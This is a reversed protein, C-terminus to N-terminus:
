DRTFTLAGYGAVMARLVDPRDVWEPSTVKPAYSPLDVTDNRM